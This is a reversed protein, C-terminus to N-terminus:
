IQSYESIRADMQMANKRRQLMRMIECDTNVHNKWTINPDQDPILFFGKACLPCTVLTVDQKDVKICM